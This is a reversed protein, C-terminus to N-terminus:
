LGAAASLDGDFIMLSRSRLPDESSLEEESAPSAAETALARSLRWSPSWSLAVSGVSKAQALAAPWASPVVGSLGSLMNVWTTPHTRNLVVLRDDSVMSAPGVGKRINAEVSM